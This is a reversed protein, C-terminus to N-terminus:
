SVLTVFKNVAEQLQSVARSFESDQSLYSKGASIKRIQKATNNIFIEDLPSSVTRAISLIRKKGPAKKLPM